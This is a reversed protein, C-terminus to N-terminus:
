RFAYTLVAHSTHLACQASAACHMYPATKAKLKQNFILIKAKSYIYENDIIQRLM